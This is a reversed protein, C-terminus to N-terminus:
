SKLLGLKYKLGRKLYDLQNPKNKLLANKILNKTLKKIIKEKYFIHGDTDTHKYFFAEWGPSRFNTDQYVILKFEDCHALQLELVVDLGHPPNKKDTDYKRNTLYVNFGHAPPNLFNGNGDARHVKYKM